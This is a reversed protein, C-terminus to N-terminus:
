VRCKGQQLPVIHLLPRLLMLFCNPIQGEFSTHLDQYRREGRVGDEDRPM